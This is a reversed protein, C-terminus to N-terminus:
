ATHYLDTLKIEIDSPINKTYNKIANVIDIVMRKREFSISGAIHPSIFANPLYYLPNWPFMPEHQTVDLIACLDPRKILVKCLDFEKVQKGRGTNIFTAYPKMLSFLSKNLMKQTDPLDPLHNSIINSEKFLQKINVLTCNYENAIQASIFPDYALIKCHYDTLRKAVERGIKGFGILGITAEWNGNHSEAYKRAKKFRFQKYYKQAHFYGKNALIIQATTFEAVPISNSKEASFIKIGLELFPKAFYKVSGATYFICKLKPFLNQIESKSFIPMNWSSIIFEVSSTINTTLDYKTYITHDIEVLSSITKLIEKTFLQPILTKDTCLFIGKM